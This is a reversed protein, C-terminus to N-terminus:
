IEENIQKNSTSSSRNLDEEEEEEKIISSDNNNDDKREEVKKGIMRRLYNSMSELEEYLQDTVNSVKLERDVTFDLLSKIRNVLEIDEVEFLKM